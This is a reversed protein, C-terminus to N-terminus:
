PAPPAWSNQAGLGPTWWMGAAPASTSSAAVRPMKHAPEGFLQVENDAIRKPASSAASGEYPKLIAPASAAFNLLQFAASNSPGFEHASLPPGEGLPMLLTHEKVVEASAAGGSFFSGFSTDLVSTGPGSASALQLEEGTEESADALDFHVGPGTKLTHILRKPFLKVSAPRYDLWLNVLLTVRYADLGKLDQPWTAARNFAPPLPVAGHLLNGNFRLHARPTPWSLAAKLIPGHSADAKDLVLTPAGFGGLYTVTSVAPHKLRGRVQFNEEDKNWHLEIPKNVETVQTWWEAGSASRQFARGRSHCKFVEVALCELACRPQWNKEAPVWFSTNLTHAIACDNRLNRMVADDDLGTLSERWRQAFPPPVEEKPEQLALQLQQAYRRHFRAM